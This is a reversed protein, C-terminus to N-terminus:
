LRSLSNIRRYNWWSMSLYYPLLLAIRLQVKNVKLPQRFLCRISEFGQQRRFLKHIYRHLTRYFEPSYTGKYMLALDDSDKWNAKTQLQTKVKEYFVTGPLPYSISIGIDHPMLDLLMKKTAIIDEMTEGPYGFQLFFAPKINHKKILQTARYIQEVKTGKDMADLIKQSGSEAGVWITDCGAKALWEINNEELLLDVRCQIKFRFKLQKQQVLESFSKIWGPKLGFIDDCFWFHDPQYKELLMSIEAVVNEPSRSNYRNGYIPKACWNCKFPCGRTTALNMSFYGNAAQWQQKYLAIDALDWAPFPINDLHHSVERPATRIVEKDDLYSLGKVMRVNGNGNHLIQVLELLTYEAEGRIIFDAGKQLYTETHDTADSSSVIVTCGLKKAIGIMEFAAERMNTLCMKTLYNFGDDYVVFISPTEQKLVQQIHSANHEFITDHFSVSFGHERLIAAAYLTALPPYPQMQKLQKPDFAMFYTNALVIDTM